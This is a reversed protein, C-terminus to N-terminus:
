VLKKLFIFYTLLILSIFSVVLSTIINEFLISTVIGLFILCFSLFKSFSINFSKQRYNELPEIGFIPIFHFISFICLITFFLIYIDTNYFFMKNFLFCLFFFINGILLTRSIRLNSIDMNRIHGMQLELKSTRGFFMHPIKEIKYSWISPYIFYTFSLIYLFISFFYAGLGDKNSFKKNLKELKQLYFAIDKTKDLQRSLINQRSDLGYVVFRRLIFIINFGQYYSCYKMFAQRLFLVLFIFIFIYLYNKFFFDIAFFNILFIFCISFVLFLINDLIISPELLVKKVLLFFLYMFFFLILIYFNISVQNFNQFTITFLIALFFSVFTIDKVEDKEFNIQKLM